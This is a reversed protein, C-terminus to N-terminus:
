HCLAHTINQSLICEESPKKWGLNSKRAACSGDLRRGKTARNYSVCFRGQNLATSLGLGEFM